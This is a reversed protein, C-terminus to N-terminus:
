GAFVAVLIVLVAVAAVMASLIGLAKRRRRGPRALGQAVLGVMRAQGEPSNISPQPGDIPIRETQRFRTRRHTRRVDPM